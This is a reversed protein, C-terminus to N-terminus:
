CNKNICLKQCGQINLFGKGTQFIFCRIRTKIQKIKVVQLSSCIKIHNNAKKIKHNNYDKRM